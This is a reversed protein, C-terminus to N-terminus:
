IAEVAIRPLLEHVAKAHCLETGPSLLAGTGAAVAYRLAEGPVEGRALAWALGAVFSDGAGVTSRPEIDPAHAAWAQSTTILRAGKEALSLAVIEAGGRDLIERAAAIWAAEDPLPKGSLDTLERLNPKVLWVGEALAARLAKGSTDVILRCGLAKARKAIDAYFGLPVGPPLSGSAIAIDPRAHALDLAALCAAQEDANLAAGPMVFRYQRGSESEIITVDERTEGAVRVPVVHVGEGQVLAELRAGTPGGVTFVASVDAGFRRLVRAVNIGGGGPDYRPNACRLKRIPEVHGVDASLDLAPNMTLTVIHAIMIRDKQRGHFDFGWGRGNIQSM